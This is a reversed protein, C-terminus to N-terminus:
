LGQRRRTLGPATGQKKLESELNHKIYRYWRRYRNNMKNKRYAAAAHYFSRYFRNAKFELKSKLYNGFASDPYLKLARELYTDANLDSGTSFYAYGCGIMSKYNFPNIKLSKNYNSVADSYQEQSFQFDAKKRYSDAITELVLLISLLVFIIMIVLNPTQIRKISRKKTKRNKNNKHPYIRSLAISAAIGAPFFYIGIDITNYVLLLFFASIYINKEKFLNPDTPLWKKRSFILFLLIICPIIIGTEATFQLFFNHAYISKAEESKTYYSIKSEYNGLGVGWFPSSNIVRAAQTWNSVRFKIPELERAESFRLATIVFFFLALLMVAPALFKFKLAQSLLLYLLVGISIYIIGGFSQTLVLNFLGLLLLIGWSIKKKNDAKLLYHFIFLILIACIVAYLTPLAFLSFIRGGRIRTVLAQSYFNDGANIHTLYFPFLFFKQFIGYLFLILSVGGVIPPLINDPNFRRLILFLFVLFLFYILRSFFLPKVSSVAVNIFLFFAAPGFIWGSRRM